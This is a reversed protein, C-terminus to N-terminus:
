LFIFEFPPFLACKCNLYTRLHVKKKKIIHVNNQSIKTNPM